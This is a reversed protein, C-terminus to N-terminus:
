RAKYLLRKGKYSKDAAYGVLAGVGAGIAGFIPVTVATTIDLRESLGWGLVAGGGIGVGLGILTGNLPADEYEELSTVRGIGSKPLSVESGNVDVVTLEKLGLNKFEGEVRDGSQLHIIIRSGSQLAEVKEWRGPIVEATLVVSSLLFSLLLGGWSHSCGSRCPIM